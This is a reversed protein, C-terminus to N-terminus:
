NRHTLLLTSTHWLGLDLECNRHMLLLTFTHWLGLDLECVAVAQDDVCQGGGDLQIFGLGQVTDAVVM